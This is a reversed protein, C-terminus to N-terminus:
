LGLSAIRRVLSEQQIIDDALLAEKNIEFKSCIYDLGRLKFLPSNERPGSKTNESQIHPGSKTSESQINSVVMLRVCPAIYDRSSAGIEPTDDREKLEESESITELNYKEYESSSLSVSSGDDSIEGDELDSGSPRNQDTKVANCINNQIIWLRACLQLLEFRIM